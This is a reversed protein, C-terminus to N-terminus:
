GIIHACMNYIKKILACCILVIAVISILTAISALYSSLHIGSIGFINLTIEYTYLNTNAGVKFFPANFPGVGNTLYGGFIYQIYFDYIITWLM